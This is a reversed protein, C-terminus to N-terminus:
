SRLHDVMSSGGQVRVVGGKQMKAPSSYDLKITSMKLNQNVKVKLINSKGRTNKTTHAITKPANQGKPMINQTLNSIKSRNSVSNINKDM